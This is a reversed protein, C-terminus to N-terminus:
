HDIMAYTYRKLFGVLLFPDVGVIKTFSLCGQGIRSLHPANRVVALSFDSLRLRWTSSSSRM